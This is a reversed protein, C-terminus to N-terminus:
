KKITNHTTMRHPLFFHATLAAKHPQNCSKKNQQLTPNKDIMKDRKNSNDGRKKPHPM